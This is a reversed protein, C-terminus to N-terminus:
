RVKISIDDLLLQGTAPSLGLFIKMRTAGAPVKVESAIKTWDFTGYLQAVAPADLARRAPIEARTRHQGTADTFEVFAAWIPQERHAPSDPLKLDKGRAFFSIDYTDGARAPLSPSWFGLGDKCMDAPKQGEIKLYRLGGHALKPQKPDSQSDLPLAVTGGAGPYALSECGGELGCYAAYPFKHEVGDGSGPRWFYPLINQGAPDELECAGNGVMMLVQSPDKAIGVRFTVTDLGVDAPQADRVESHADHGTAKTWDTSSRTNRPREAKPRSAGSRCPTRRPGTPTTTPSIPSSSRSGSRRTAIACWTIRSVHDTTSYPADGGWVALGSGRCEMVLNRMFVGRQSQRCTIGHGNRYSTNFYARTDAMAYEIYLGAEKNNACTNGVYMIRVIDIDGWLAWGDHGCDTDPNGAELVVNHAFVSDSASNMKISGIWCDEHAPNLTCRVALNDEIRCFTPRDQLYIGNGLTGVVTNRRVITGHSDWGGVGIGGGCDTILCDEVVCHNASTWVATGVYNRARIGSLRNHDTLIFAAQRVPVRIVHKVPEDGGLNLLLRKAKADFQYFNKDADTLTGLKYSRPYERSVQDVKVWVPKDDVLVFGPDREVVAAYINKSNGQLQWKDAAFTDAGEFVVEDDGFACFSVPKPGDGQNKVTVSEAYTGAHIFVTDGAHAVAAAKAVTKWPKDATGPGDDSAAPHTTAVHYDAAPAASHFAFLAALIAFLSIMNKM